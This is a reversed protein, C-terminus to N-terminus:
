VLALYLTGPFDALRTMMSGGGPRRLRRGDEETEEGFTSIEEGKKCVECSCCCMFILVYLFLAHLIFVQFGLARRFLIGKRM